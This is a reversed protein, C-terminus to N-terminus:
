NSATLCRHVGADVVAPRAVSMRSNMIVRL